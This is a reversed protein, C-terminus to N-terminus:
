GGPCALWPEEEELTLTLTLDAELNYFPELPQSNFGDLLYM